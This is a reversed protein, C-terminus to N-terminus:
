RSGSVSNDNKAHAASSFQEFDGSDCEKWMVVIERGNKLNRKYEASLM